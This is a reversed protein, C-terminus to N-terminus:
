YREPGEAYVRGQFAVAVGWQGRERISDRSIRMLMEWQDEEDLDEWEAEHWGDPACHQVGLKRSWGSSLNWEGRENYLELYVINADDYCAERGKGKIIAVLGPGVENM